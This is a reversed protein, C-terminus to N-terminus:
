ARVRACHRPFAVHRLHLRPQLRADRARACACRRALVAPRSLASADSAQQRAETSNPLSSRARRTRLVRSVGACPQMAACPPVHSCMAACAATHFKEALWYARSAAARMCAHRITSVAALRRCDASSAALAPVCATQWPRRASTAPSGHRQQANGWSQAHEIHLQASRVADRRACASLGTPSSKANKQDSRVSARLHGPDSTGPRARRFAIVRQKNTAAQM